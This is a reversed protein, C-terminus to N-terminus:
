ALAELGQGRPALARRYASVTQSATNAWTFRGARAPGRMALDSRLASDALLRALAEALAAEDHPPVLLAAEGAIEPLSSVNTTVSPLGCALAEALPLGFGEYASPYVFATAANYWHPLEEPSLYEPFIVEGDLHLDSVAQFTAQYAWGKPGALVLRLDGSRVRAFARILVDVNKRPELTGLYFIFREPLGLRARFAAVEAEPLPRFRSHVGPYAVDIQEVPVHYHAAVDRRTSESIAIVRRARRVSAATFSRLYARRGAGLREPTHLFSLDYVTVVAPCPCVLPSVFALSHLLDAKERMLEWPAILQEWLIRAAPRGTPLRSRRVRLAPREALAGEGVFATYRLGADTEPLHEILHEIYQHIGARRYGPRGFLLHANLAVHFELPAPPNYM